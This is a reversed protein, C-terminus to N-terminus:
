GYTQELRQRLNIIKMDDPGSVVVLPRRDWTEFWHDVAPASWRPRRGGPLRRPFGHDRELVRVFELTANCTREQLEDKLQALTYTLHGTM